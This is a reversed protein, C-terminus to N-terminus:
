YDMIGQSPPKEVCNVQHESAIFISSHKQGCFDCSYWHTYGCSHCVRQKEKIETRCNDCQIKNMRLLRISRSRGGRSIGRSRYAV